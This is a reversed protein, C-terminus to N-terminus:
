YDYFEEIKVNTMGAGVAASYTLIAAADLANVNDDHNVDADALQSKALGSNNGAGINAASVLVAAADKANVVTDGDVDGKERPSSKAILTDYIGDGDTDEKVGITQKDIEYLLVSDADSALIRLFTGYESSTRQIEAPCSLFFAGHVALLFLDSVDIGHVFAGTKRNKIQM